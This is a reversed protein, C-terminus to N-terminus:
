WGGAWVLGKICCRKNICGKQVAQGTEAAERSYGQGAEFGGFLGRIGGIIRQGRGRGECVESASWTMSTVCVCM